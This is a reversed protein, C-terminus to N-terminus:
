PHPEPFGHRATLARLIGDKDDIFRRGQYDRAAADSPGGDGLLLVPLSQNTSGLAAVVPGRPRRWEVREVELRAALDPSSALLGELLACHWCYFRRGPHAPDEFHPKLLFLKDRTAM